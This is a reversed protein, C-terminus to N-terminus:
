TAPPLEPAPSGHRYADLAQTLYDLVAAGRQRLTYVVSLLRAVYECGAPSDNGFSKKRKIVAGRLAREAANNTPEVGAVRAFTWLSGELKLVAACTGATATHDCWTGRVLLRRVQTRIGAVKGRLWRRARTGDRVRYWADFLEATLGLLGDGVAAAGGGAEAMAQFDRKLHAWCLQRRDGPVCQYASWRDSTIVGGVGEGLLAKLAEAGRRLHVLFYASTAAVAGWLWRKRGGEKWGTEDVNKSPAARVLEGLRRHPVELAASMQRQAAMVAGLSIPVGLLAGAVEELGRASLHQCGSLYSLAAALRPGFAAARIEAPIVVTTLQGCCPCRRAHGQFETVVACARPLEILQHWTPEPDGPSPGAPLAASCGACREPLLPITHDVRPAPLRQRSHGPHGPQGGRPRGSPKKAVPPPASPPNASPPLSSNAANQGLRAELDSVRRQLAQLQQRLEAILADRERCGACAPESM